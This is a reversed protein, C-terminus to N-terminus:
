CAAYWGDPFPILPWAGGNDNAARPPPQLRPSAHALFDEEPMLSVAACVADLLLEYEVDRM